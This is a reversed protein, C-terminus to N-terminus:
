FRVFVVPVGCSSWYMNRIADREIGRIILFMECLLQLSFWCVCYKVNLHGHMTVLKTYFWCSADFIWFKNQWLVSCTEPMKQAWWWSNDATHVAIPVPELGVRSPLPWMVQMFRVLQRAYLLYSRIIPMSSARFMCLKIVFYTKSIQHM